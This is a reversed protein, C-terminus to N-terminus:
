QVLPQAIEAIIDSKEGDRSLYPYREGGHYDMQVTRYLDDHEILVDIKKESNRTERIAQRLAEPSFAMGDVAVLQMDPGIGARYAPSNVLVEEVQFNKEPSERHVILGVSHRFDSYGTADEYAKYRPPLEDSFALKWGAKEIGGTPPLKNPKYVRARFFGDWDFHAVDDLADIVDKYRYGSVKPTRIGSAPKGFFRRCFDDLSKKGNSLSRINVDAELWILDSEEYFDITRRRDSGSAPAEFQVQAAIATDALSRWFRGSSAAENAATLALHDRWDQESWLGARVPIISEYYNTLGEYVWLLETAQPQQYDDMIMDAPRRAKGNWSHILEHAMMGAAGRRGGDTLLMKEGLRNDSSEHHELGFQAIHDSLAMLFDYTDFPHSGFLALEETVIPAYLLQVENSSELSVDNDAAIHMRFKVPDDTLQFHRFNLGTLVPSDVLTVLSVPKFEISGSDDGKAGIQQLATGYSWGSPLLLKPKVQYQVAPKGAPYMLVYHWSLIALHETSSRGASFGKQETPLLFNFEVRLSKVGSPIETRFVYLDRPDRQWDLERDGAKLHLDVV